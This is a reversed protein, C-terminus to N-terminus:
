CKVIPQGHPDGKIEHFYGASGCAPAWNKRDVGDRAVKKNEVTRSSAAM